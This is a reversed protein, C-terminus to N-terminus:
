KKPKEFKLVFNDAEGIALYKAKDQEGLRLTPPLTWVGGPYDKTDKPNALLESKAVLKFGVKRALEIAYDERVYGSAAKPDQPRDNRGRHDEVGLIGGPKLAKFFAAFADEAYGGMIWNHLNRFTLVMDVSNEPVIDTVGRGFEVNQVKGFVQRNADLKEQWDAAAKIAREGGARPPVTTYLMGKDKLYPALIETWYGGGPTVEIVKMTPKIGFFELEQQPHRANDRAVFEPTRHKGAIAASLDNDKAFTTGSCTVCALFVCLLLKSQM